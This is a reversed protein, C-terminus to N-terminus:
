WSWIHNESQAGNGLISDMSNELPVTGGPLDMSEASDGTLNWQYLEFPDDVSELQQEPSRTNSSFVPHSGEPSRLDPQPIDDCGDHSHSPKGISPPCDHGKYTALSQTRYEPYAQSPFEFNLRRFTSKLRNFASTIEESGGDNADSRCNPCTCSGTTGPGSLQQVHEITSDIVDDLIDRYKRLNPNKEAM